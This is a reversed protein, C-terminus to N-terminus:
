ALTLSPALAVLMTQDVDRNPLLCVLAGLRLVAAVLPHSGLADSEDDGLM